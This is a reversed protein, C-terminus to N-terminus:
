PLVMNAHIRKKIIIQVPIFSIMKVGSIIVPCGTCYSDNIDGSTRHFILAGLTRLQINM